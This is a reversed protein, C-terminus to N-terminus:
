PQTSVGACGEPCLYPQFDEANFKLQGDAPVKFENGDKTTYRATQCARSVTPPGTPDDVNNQVLYLCVKNDGAQAGPVAQTEVVQVNQIKFDYCTVGKKAGASSPQADYVYALLGNPDPTLPDTGRLVEDFDTVGDNDTDRRPTQSDLPNTGFRVEVEDLLGDHDTDAKSSDTGLAEEACDAMYDFDTDPLSVNPNALSVNSCGAECIGTNPLLAQIVGDPCGSVKSYVKLPDTGLITENPDSVGDMDSDALLTGNHVVRSENVAYFIDKAFPRLIESFGIQFNLEQSALSQFTGRGVTAMSQLYEGPSWAECGDPRVDAAGFALMITSMRIDYVGLTSRLGMLATAAGTVSPLTQCPSPQGDSLWQIDYRTRARLAPTLTAADSIIFQQVLSVTDLYNTGGKAVRLQPIAGLLLAQDQTFTQTVATPTSEFKIIGFSVQNNNAYQTVVRQVADARNGPPDTTKNSGSDDIVFLIKYPYLTSRPDTTCVQGSVTLKNDHPAPPQEICQSSVCILNADTCAPATILM